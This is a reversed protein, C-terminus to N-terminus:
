EGDDHQDRLHPPPSSQFYKNRSHKLVPPVM